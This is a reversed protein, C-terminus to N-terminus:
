VHVMTAALSRPIKREAVWINAHVELFVRMAHASELLDTASGWIAASWRWMTLLMIQVPIDLGHLARRVRVFRAIM